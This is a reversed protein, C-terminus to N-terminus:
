LFNFQLLTIVGKSFSPLINVLVHVLGLSSCYTEQLNLLAIDRLLLTLQTNYVVNVFQQLFTM